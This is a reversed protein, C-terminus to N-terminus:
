RKPPDAFFIIQAYNKLAYCGFTYLLQIQLQLVSDELVTIFIVTISVPQAFRFLERRVFGCM